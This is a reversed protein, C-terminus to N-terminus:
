LKKDGRGGAEVESRTGLASLQLLQLKFLYVTHTDACRVKPPLTVNIVLIYPQMYLGLFFLQCVLNLFFGWLNAAIKKSCILIEWLKSVLHRWTVTARLESTGKWVVRFNRYKVQRWTSGGCRWATDIEFWWLFWWAAFDSSDSFFM